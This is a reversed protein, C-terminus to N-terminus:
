ILTQPQSVGQLDIRGLDRPVSNRLYEIHAPGGGEPLRVDLFESGEVYPGVHNTSDFEAQFMDDLNDLAGQEEAAELSLFGPQGLCYQLLEENDCCWEEYKRRRSM